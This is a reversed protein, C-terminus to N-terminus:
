GLAERNSETASRLDAVEQARTECEVALAQQLGSVGAQLPALRTDLLTGMRDWFDGGVETPRSALTSSTAPSTFDLRRRGVATGFPAKAGSM